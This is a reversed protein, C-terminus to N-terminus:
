AGTRGALAADPTLAPQEVRPEGQWYGTRRLYTAAEIAAAEEATLAMGARPTRDRPPQWTSWPNDVVAKRVGDLVARANEIGVVAADVRHKPIKHTSM